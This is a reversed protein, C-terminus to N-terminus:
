TSEKPNETSIYEQSSNSCELEKTVTEAIVEILKSLLNRENPEAYILLLAPPGSPDDGPRVVQIQM